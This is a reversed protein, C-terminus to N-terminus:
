SHKKVVLILYYRTWALFLLLLILTIIGALTDSLVNTALLLFNLIVFTIFIIIFPILFHQIKSIGFSVGNKISRFIERKETFNVYINITLYSILFLLTYVLVPWVTNKFIVIPLALIILAAILLILNLLAFKYYFRFNFKKKLIVNYILGKFFSWILISVVVFILTSISLFTVFGEVSTTLSTIKNLGELLISPDTQLQDLFFIERYLLISYYLFAIYIIIYGLFDYAILLPTKKNIKRISEKYTKFEKIIKKM